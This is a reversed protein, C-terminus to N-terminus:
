VAQLFSLAKEVECLSDRIAARQDAELALAMTIM